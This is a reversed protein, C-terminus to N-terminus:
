RAAEGRMRVMSLVHRPMTRELSGDARNLAVMPYSPPKLARMTGSRRQGSREREVESAADNGGGECAVGGLSLDCAAEVDAEAGDLLPEVAVAGGSRDRRGGLTM